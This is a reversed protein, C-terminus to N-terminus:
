EYRLAVMPDVKTARRAPLYAALLTVAAVAAVAGLLTFPDSPKLGFLASEILRMAALTAPVGVAIGIALVVVSERLILWLVGGQQAGLAMRVGIENTRRVVSYTMVGYLGICVLLLALLAFFISLQSILTERNTFQDVHEQITRISPVPMNPDLQTLAARVSAATSEPNGATRIQLWSVYSDEGTMQALPVYVLRRGEDRPGTYLVDKVVGAIAWDGDLGPMNLVLRQGIAGGKPFLDHALKENIVVVHPATAVDRAEIYRGQDLGIHLTEFYNPSVRLFNSFTDDGPDVPRGKVAVSTSWSGMAM